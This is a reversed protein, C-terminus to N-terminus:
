EVDLNGLYNDFAQRQAHETDQLKKITAQM